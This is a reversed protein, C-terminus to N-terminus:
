RGPRWGAWCSARSAPACRTRRSRRSTSSCACLHGVHLVGSQLAALVRPLRGVLTLSRVLEEEARQTTVNLAIALESTAWESVPRLVEARSAWREAAMAGAEGPQRDASAPRSAAFAAIARARLATQRGIERDAAQVAGLPGSAWGVVPEDVALVETAREIM